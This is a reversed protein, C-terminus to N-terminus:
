IIHHNLCVFSRSLSLRPSYNCISRITDWIEWTSSWLDEESPEPLQSVKPPGTGQGDDQSPWSSPTLQLHSPSPLLTPVPTSHVQPLAVLSPDYVPVRVSFQTYSSAALCANVARAYSAVHVRSRPVPLIVTNINLYSAYAVEQLLAQIRTFVPNTEISCSFFGQLIDM